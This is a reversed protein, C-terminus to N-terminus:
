EQIRSGQGSKKLAALRTTLSKVLSTKNELLHESWKMDQHIWGGLLKEACSPEIIETPTRIEVKLNRNRKRYQSTTLVMLHTKNDNLKLKNNVMFESMALYKESLKSSLVEPDKSSYSYTTDDAYCCTSGCKECNMTFNPSNAVVGEQHVDAEGTDAHLHHDQVVDPLENTFLIYLIPGLISGQPVGTPVPELRSLSGDISVCQRRDSLYSNLWSIADEKFGYLRLKKLLLDHDVLDFAASMDLLCVGALEGADVATIWTDYMQILATTTNHHQRYSHHNPHLLNNESLYKIIQNFMVRELVKSLIPIIAVPRYNKPDLTDGNKHLPIVKIKKWSDPFQQESISLNIIHTLAPLIELRILKIIKTDIFDLGVSNTNKLESIVKDVEKPHVAHFSFYNKRNQMLQDLKALPDSIPPPMAERIHQVKNLFFLNQCKAVEVPKTHLIGEHFLHSPAGSSKWNIINKVNNWVKAPNQGCEMIRSRQWTREEFVLRSNIRNRLAKYQRWKESDRSQAAVGQLRDREAM